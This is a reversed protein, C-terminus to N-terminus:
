DGAGFGRLCSSDDGGIRSYTENKGARDEKLKMFGPCSRSGLTLINKNKSFITIQFSRAIDM